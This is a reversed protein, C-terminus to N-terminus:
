GGGVWWGWKRGRRLGTLCRVTIVALQVGRLLLPWMTKTTYHGGVVLLLEGDDDGDMKSETEATIRYATRRIAREWRKRRLQARPCRSLIIGRWTYAILCSVTAAAHVLGLPPFKAKQKRSFYPLLYFYARKLPQQNISSILRLESCLYRCADSRM